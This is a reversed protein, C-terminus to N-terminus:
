RVRLIRVKADVHAVHPIFVAELFASFNNGGGVVVGSFADLSIAIVEFFAVGPSIKRDTTETGRRVRVLDSDRCCVDVPLRIWVPWLAKSQYLKTVFLLGCRELVQTAVFNWSGGLLRSLNGFRDVLGVLLRLEYNSLIVDHRRVVRIACCVELDLM